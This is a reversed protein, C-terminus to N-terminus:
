PTINSGSSSEEQDERVPEEEPDEEEIPEEEVPEEEEPGEEMPEEEVPEEKEEELVTDFDCGWNENDDYLDMDEVWCSNWWIGGVFIRGDLNVEENPLVGLDEAVPADRIASEAENIDDAEDQGMHIEANLNDPSSKLIVKPDTEDSEFEWDMPDAIWSLSESEPGDSSSGSMESDGMQLLLVNINASAGELEGWLLLKCSYLILVHYFIM